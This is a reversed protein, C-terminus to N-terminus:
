KGYKPNSEGREIRAKEFSQQEQELREIATKYFEEIEVRLHNLDRATVGDAREPLSLLSYERLAKAKTVFSLSEEDEVLFAQERSLTCVLDCLIREHLAIAYRVEDFVTVREAEGHTSSTKM